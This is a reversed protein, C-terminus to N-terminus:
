YISKFESDFVWGVIELLALKVYCKRNDQGGDCPPLCLLGDNCEEFLFLTYKREPIPWLNFPSTPKVRVQIEMMGRIDSVVGSVKYIGSALPNQSLLELYYEAWVATDRKGLELSNNINHVGQCSNQGNQQHQQLSDLHEKIFNYDAYEQLHPERFARDKPFNCIFDWEPYWRVSSAVPWDVTLHSAM